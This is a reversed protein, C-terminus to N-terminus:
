ETLRALEDLQERAAAARSGGGDALARLATHAAEAEGLRLHAQAEIWRAEELVAAELTEASEFGGVQALADDARGELLLASGLLLRGMPGPEAAPELLAICAAFEGDVYLVQARGVLDEAEFGRTLRLDLPEVRALAVLESTRPAEAESPLLWRGLLGLVAAAAALYLVRRWPRAPNASGGAQSVEELAADLGLLCRPCDGVHELLKRRESDELAGEALAALVAPDACDPTEAASAVLETARLSLARAVDAAPGEFHPDHHAM